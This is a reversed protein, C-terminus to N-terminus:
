LFKKLLLGIWEMSHLQSASPQNEDRYLDVFQSKFLLRPRNEVQVKEM